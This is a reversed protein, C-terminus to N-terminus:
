IRGSREEEVISGGEIFDRPTMGEDEHNEEQYFQLPTYVQRSVISESLKCNAELLNLILRTGTFYHMFAVWSSWDLRLPNFLDNTSLVAVLQLVMFPLIPIFFLTGDRHFVYIVPTVEKIFSIRERFTPGAFRSDSYTGMFRMITLAVGVTTSVVGVISSALALKHQISYFQLGENQIIACGTLFFRDIAFRSIYYNEICVSILDVLVGAGTLIYLIVTVTKDQNWLARLRVVLLIRTMAQLFLTFAVSDIWTSAICWSKPLVYNQSTYAMIILHLLTCIRVSFYIIRLFRPGGRYIHKVERPIIRLSDYSFLTIASYQIYSNLEMRAVEEQFAPILGPVDAM